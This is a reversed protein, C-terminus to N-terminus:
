FKLELGVPCHDSGLTQPELWARVLHPRLEESVFFYDIRWGINKRRDSAKFSWWSYQDPIDGNLVRFTDLFGEKIFRDLFAREQPLFGSNDVNAEPEALDIKRHATNFDGCVVVPRTKRLNKCYNLFSEYYGLKFKLRLDSSQGNPFYINLFHFKPFELHLLRGEQAWVHDPLEMNFSIPESRSYVGVGCYGKRTLHNSFYSKLGPPTLLEPPLQEPLARTEQLGLVDIDPRSFFDMFGPKKAIARLGNVNWSYLIM